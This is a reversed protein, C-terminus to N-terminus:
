LKGLLGEHLCDAAAIVTAMQVTHAFRFADDYITEDPFEGVLTFPPVTEKGEGVVCVIGHHIEFPMEGLHAAYVPLQAENFERLGPVRSVRAAVEQVFRNAEKALGPGHRVILFYGKPIIWEASGRPTYGSFPRTSEHAAYGHLNVHLRVDTAKYAELRVAKEGYPEQTRHGVDDGFASFRAGHHIHRPNQRRLRVHLAYGDPNEQPILAFADGRKKLIGAARLVGVVGSTENAHQGSSVVLGTGKGSIVTGLVPRGQRSKAEIRTGGLAALESEIQSPDLPRSAEGLVQPSEQPFPVKQEPCLSIRVRTDGTGFRIDPVIQGPRLSRDGAPKGTYKQFFELASFYIDEHLAERTSVREDGYPLRYEIGGTEILVELQEFFPEAKGWDHKELLDIVLGFATEFETDIPGDTGGKRRLWGCPALVDEGLVTRVRNPAFVRHTSRRAGHELEVIYHLDDAGSEFEVPVGKLLGVLPYTEMRFRNPRAVAHSPCRVKVRSLGSLEVEELFFHLFPKYASRLRARVGKDALLAEARRRTPEDEFLWAEIETDPIAHDRVLADVCRPVTVDFLTLM